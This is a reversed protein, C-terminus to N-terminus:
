LCTIGDAQTARQTARKTARRRDAPFTNGVGVLPNGTSYEEAKPRRSLLSQMSRKASWAIKKWEARKEPRDTSQYARLYSDENVKVRMALDIPESVHRMESSLRVSSWRYEESSLVGNDAKSYLEAIVQTDAERWIVLALNEPSKFHRNHFDVDSTLLGSSGRLSFWGVLKFPALEPDDDAEALTAQFAKALRERKVLDSKPGSDEFTKLAEVV